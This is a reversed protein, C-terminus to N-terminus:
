EQAEYIIDLYEQNRNHLYMAYELEDFKEAVESNSDAVWRLELITKMIMEDYMITVEKYTVRLLNLGRM